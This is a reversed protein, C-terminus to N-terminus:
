QSEAIQGQHKGVLYALFVLAFLTVIPIFNLGGSVIGFGISDSLTRGGILNGVVGLVVFGLFVGQLLRVHERSGLVLTLFVLAVIVFASGGVLLGRMVGTLLTDSGTIGFGIGVGFTLLMLIALSRYYSRISKQLAM